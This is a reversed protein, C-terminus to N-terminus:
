SITRYHNGNIFFSLRLPLWNGSSGWYDEGRSNGEHLSEWMLDPSTQAGVACLCLFFSHQSELRCLSICRGNWRPRKSWKIQPLWSGHQSPQIFPASAVKGSSLSDTGKSFFGGARPHSHKLTLDVPLRIFSGCDLVALGLEEWIASGCFSYKETNEAPILEHGYGQYYVKKSAKRERERVWVRPDKVGAQPVM